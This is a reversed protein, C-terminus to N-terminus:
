RPTPGLEFGDGSPRYRNHSGSAREGGRCNCYWRDLTSKGSGGKQSALVVTQMVRRTQLCVPCLLVESAANKIRTLATPNTICGNAAKGSPTIDQAAATTHEAIDAKPPLASMPQLHRSTRKQGLASM